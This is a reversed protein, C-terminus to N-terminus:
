ITEIINIAYYLNVNLNIPFSHALISIFLEKYNNDNKQVLKYRLTSRISVPM